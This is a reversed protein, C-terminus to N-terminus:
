QPRKPVQGGRLQFMLLDGSYRGIEAAAQEADAALARVEELKDDYQGALAKDNEDLRRSKTLRSLEAECAQKAACLKHQRLVADAIRQQLLHYEDPTGAARTPQSAAAPKSRPKATPSVPKRSPSPSGSSPRPMSQFGGSRFELSTSSCLRIVPPFVDLQRFSTCSASQPQAKRAPIGCREERKQRKQMVNRCSTEAHRKQMDDRAPENRSFPGLQAL